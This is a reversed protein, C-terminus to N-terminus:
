LTPSGRIYSLLSKKQSYASRVVSVAELRYVSPRCDRALNMVREMAASESIHAGRLAMAYVLLGHNRHGETFGNRRSFLLEIVKVKTEGAARHGRHHHPQPNKDGNARLVPQLPLLEFLDALGKLTDTCVSHGHRQIWWRVQKEAGTHLSGQIRVHRAADTGQPDAGIPALRKCVERQIESYLLAHDLPNDLWVGHHAQDANKPDRLLWLLWMGQGSDIVVSTPPLRGAKEAELVEFFAENFTRRTKYYDIDAYCACLYKLTQSGHYKRLAQQSRKQSNTEGYSANVSVFSDKELRERLFPFISDLQSRQVSALHSFRGDSSKVAFSIYGDHRHLSEIGSTRPYQGGPEQRDSELFLLPVDLPRFRGLGDWDTSISTKRLKNEVLSM